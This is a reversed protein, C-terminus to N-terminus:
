FFTSNEAPSTSQNSNDFDFDFDSDSLPTQTTTVISKATLVVPKQLSSMLAALKNEDSMRYLLGSLINVDTIELKGSSPMQAEIAQIESVLTNFRSDLFALGDIKERLSKLGRVNTQNPHIAGTLSKLLQRSNKLIDEDLTQTLGDVQNDLGTDAETIVNHASQVQFMSYTATIRKEVEETPTLAKRLISEYAPFKGIWDDQISDHRLLYNAKETEFQEVIVALKKAISDAQDTPIAYGGLFPIGVSLCLREAQRKLTSFVNLAKPDTTHKSGLNVVEKPPREGAISLDSDALKKRGTWISFNLQVAIVDSLIRPAKSTTM